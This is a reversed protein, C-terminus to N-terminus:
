PAPVFRVGSRPAIVPANVGWPVAFTGTPSELWVTASGGRALNQEWLSGGLMTGYHFEIAGTDILHVQVDFLTGPFAAQRVNEWSVITRDQSRFVALLGSPGIELDDWFPAM